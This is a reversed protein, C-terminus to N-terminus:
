ECGGMFDALDMEEPHPEDRDKASSNEGPKFARSGTLTFQQRAEGVLDWAGSPMERPDDPLDPNAEREERPIRATGADNRLDRLDEIAEDEYWNLADFIPGFDWDRGGPGRLFLAAVADLFDERVTDLSDDVDKVEADDKEQWVFAGPEMNSEPKRAIVYQETKMQRYLEWTESDEDVHFAFRPYNTM